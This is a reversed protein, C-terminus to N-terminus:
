YLDGILRYFWFAQETKARHRLQGPSFGTTRRVERGFHSQDAYGAEAALEAWDQRPEDLNCIASAFAQETRSLGLLTRYSQGTWAKIRREVQRGSRGAGSFAARTILHHTWDSIMHTFAPAQPRCDRWLSSLYDQLREFGAEACGSAQIEECVDIFPEAFVGAQKARDPSCRAGAVAVNCDAYQDIPTGFLAKLADPYFAVSLVYVPGPNHSATPRRQPGNFIIAPLANPDIRLCDPESWDRVLRSEGELFWSITCYPTASFYNFRDSFPLRLSRTDYSVAARICRALSPRPLWLANTEPYIRGGGDVGVSQIEGVEAM